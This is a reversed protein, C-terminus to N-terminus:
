VNGVVADPLFPLFNSIFRRVKFLLEFLINVNLASADDLDDKILAFTIVLQTALDQAVARLGVLVAM